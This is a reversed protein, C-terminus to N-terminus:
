LSMFSPKSWRKPPDLVAFAGSVSDINDDHRGAPFSGVQDLFSMTWTGKILYVLGLEAKAFWSQARMVKDGFKKPDHPRVTFGALEPMMALEAVQNKGGSGPEQEVYIPIKPGDLYAVEIIMKKIDLWSAQKGIQHEIYFAGLSSQSLLTGVTHDPDSMKSRRGILKVESAALDWYRVKRKIEEDLPIVELIRGTFWNRDGLTSGEDVFRGMIEQERLWGSPYNTMMSAFFAPDLNDKNDLISSYVIQTIARGGLADQLDKKIEESFEQEVFTRYMWHDTGRPTASTWSQPQWGIRVSANAIRWGMGTEDRGGEDYWFWNVNPGRASDPDRLGKCYVKADNQFVMTFPQSPAWEPNQRHRQSPIVMDWPLWERFESWTSLKFNEFDPNIVLGDLGMEIRKNAKQSASATKGGGRGCIFAVYRATSDIFEKQPDSPNFETGDIKLFYGSKSKNWDAANGDGFFRSVDKGRRKMENLAAILAVRDAESVKKNPDRKSIRSM